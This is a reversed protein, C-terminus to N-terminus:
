RARSRREARDLWAQVRGAVQAGVKRGRRLEFVFSRDNLVDQGFRTASTQTRRLYREIRRRLKMM